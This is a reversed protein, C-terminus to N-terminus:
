AFVCCDDYVCSLALAPLQLRPILCRKERREDVSMLPLPVVVIAAFVFRLDLGIEVSKRGRDDRARM